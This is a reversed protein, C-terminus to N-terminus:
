YLKLVFFCCTFLREFFFFRISVETTTVDTKNACAKEIFEKGKVDIVFHCMPFWYAHEIWPDDTVKWERLGGGCHFCVTRDELGSFISM